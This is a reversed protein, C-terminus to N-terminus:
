TAEVLAQLVDVLRDIESEDNFYHVAVRLWDNRVTTIINEKQFTKDIQKAPAAPHTFSVIGSWYSEERPSIIECGADLLRNCLRDTLSKIRSAIVDIKENLLFELSAGLAVVGSYNLTGEEFRRADAIVREEADTFSGVDSNYPDRVSLWGFNPIRPADLWQPAVYLFGTGPPALMWKQSGASVFDAQCDRASFPLAGLGQIADVVFVIGREKCLKGLADVDRRCGDDYQVFSVSLLRTKDTIAAAVADPTVRPRHFNPSEPDLWRIKVGLPELSLWPHINSPFEGRPLLIEDGEQWDLMRSAIWLGVGTNKVFAVSKPSCDLLQAGKTRTEEVALLWKPFAAASETMMLEDFSKLTEFTTKPLPGSASSMFYAYKEKIPFLEKLRAETSKAGVM